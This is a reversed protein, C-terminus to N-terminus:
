YFSNWRQLWFPSLTSALESLETWRNKFDSENNLIQAAISDDHCGTILNEWESPSLRQSVSVAVSRADINELSLESVYMDPDFLCAPYAFLPGMRDPPSQWPLEVRVLGFSMFDQDDNEDAEFVFPTFGDLLGSGIMALVERVSVWHNDQAGEPPYTNEVLFNVVEGRLWSLLCESADKSSCVFANMFKEEARALLVLVGTPSRFLAPYEDAFRDSQGTFCCINQVQFVVDMLLPLDVITDGYGDYAPILDTSGDSWTVTMLESECGLSIPYEMWEVLKKNM